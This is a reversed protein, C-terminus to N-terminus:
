RKQSYCFLFLFFLSSYKILIIFISYTIYSANYLLINSYFFYIKLANFNWKSLVVSELTLWHYASFLGHGRFKVFHSMVVLFFFFFFLFLWRCLYFLYLNFKPRSSDWWTPLYGNLGNVWNKVVKTIIQTAHPGPNYWECTPVHCFQLLTTFSTITSSKSTCNLVFSLYM